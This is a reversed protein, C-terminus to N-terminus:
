VKYYWEDDKKTLSSDVELSGNLNLQEEGNKFWKIISGSELDQDVDNFSYNANLKQDSMPERPTIKLNTASPATNGVTVESSVLMAGDDDGDNPTVHCRWRQGKSTFTSTLTASDINSYVWDNATENFYHWKHTTKASDLGDGDVDYLDYDVTLSDGSIPNTPSVTVNSVEPATNVIYLVNSQFPYTPYTSDYGDSPYLVAEWTQYKTTNQANIIMMNDLTSNHVGNVYWHIITGSEPDNELDQYMYTLNIDFETTPEYSTIDNDPPPADYFGFIDVWAMWPVVNSVYVNLHGSATINVELNGYHWGDNFYIRHPNDSFEDLKFITKQHIIIWQALGNNVQKKYVMNDKANFITINAWTPINNDIDYVQISTYHFIEVRSSFDEIKLKALNFTTNILSVVASNNLVLSPDT